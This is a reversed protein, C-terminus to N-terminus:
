KTGSPGLSPFRYTIHYQRSVSRGISRLIRQLESLDPAYYYEGKVRNAFWILRHDPETRFNIAFFRIHAKACLEELAEISTRSSNDQGDTVVIMVDNRQMTDRELIISMIAAAMADYLPTFRTRISDYYHWFASIARISDAFETQAIFVNPRRTHLHMESRMANDFTVAQFRVGAPLSDILSDCMKTLSDYAHFMSGSNDLVFSLTLDSSFRAGLSDVSLITARQDGETIVLDEKTLSKTDPSQGNLEIWAENWNASDIHVLARDSKALKISINQAFVPLSFLFLSLAAAVQAVRASKTKSQREM